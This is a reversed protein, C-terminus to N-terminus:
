VAPSRAFEALKSAAEAVSSLEATHHEDMGRMWTWYFRGHGAEVTAAGREPESVTVHVYGDGSMSVHLAPSRLIDDPLRRLIARADDWASSAVPLGREGDWGPHASEAALAALKSELAQSLRRRQRAAVLSLRSMARKQSELAKDLTLLSDIVATLRAHLEFLRDGYADNTTGIQRDVAVLHDEVNETWGGTGLPEFGYADCNM